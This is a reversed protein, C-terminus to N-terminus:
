ECLFIRGVLFHSGTVVLIQDGKLARLLECYADCCDANKSIKVDSRIERVKVALDDVSFSRIEHSVTFVIEDAVGLIKTLIGRVDKDGMLSFLFVFKKGPFTAKLSLVLNEISSNTHAIDFVVTKGKVDRVDFRGVMKFNRVVSCFVEYDVDKLLVKLAVYALDANEKLALNSVDFGFDVEESFCLPVRKGVKLIVLDKVEDTQKGVVLPVNSKVIGLKEDLIEGIDNGLIGVHELEVKTLVCVCPTVINTADLRGGLGVELVVYDVKESIFYKLVLLTLIEFYTLDCGNKGDLFGKLDEVLSCFRQETIVEGDLWFCERVNVLFPTSFFGIKKGLKVLYNAILNSTTGKGKSGAVHVFKLKSYDVEFAKAFKKVKTLDFNANSYDIRFLDEYSKFGVLYKVASEFNM